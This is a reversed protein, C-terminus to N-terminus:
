GYIILLGILLGLFAAFAPVRSEWMRIAEPLLEAFVVYLMAGSAFGLAITLSVPGLTGLYYGLLAGLVTPAGALATALVARGRSLGGAILPVAVAVGEPINHLGIIVALTFSSRMSVGTVQASAYAAGIVMGEPLNHLAIACAMVLGSVFLKADKKEQRISVNGHLNTRIAPRNHGLPPRIHSAHQDIWHNLFQVVGYGLLTSFVVLYINATETSGVTEIADIILDFCVVSLMVGAAFSLLLSVTKTSNQRFVTAVVGGLGTGGIGAITTILVVWLLM